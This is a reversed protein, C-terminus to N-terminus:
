RPASRKVIEAMVASERAALTEEIWATRQELTLARAFQDVALIAGGPRRASEGRALLVCADRAFDDAIIPWEAGPRWLRLDWSARELAGAVSWRVADHSIPDVLASDLAEALGRATYAEFRVVWRSLGHLLTLVPDLGGFPYGHDLRIAPVPSREAALARSAAEIRGAVTTV